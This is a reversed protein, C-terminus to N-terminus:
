SRTKKFTYVTKNNTKNLIDYDLVIFRYSKQIDNISMNKFIKEKNKNIYLMSEEKLNYKNYMWDRTGKFNNCYDYTLLEKLINDQNFLILLNEYMDDYSIKREILKSLICYNTICEFLEYPNNFLTELYKISEIFMKSNFITEFINEFKKLYSIDEYSMFKNQLVEYPPYSLFTYDYEKQKTYIDTGKLFKLFGLQMETTRLLYLDNFSKKFINIDEYPLGIILDTHIHLNNMKVLKQIVEKEYEFNYKRNISELTQRNTSQVGIELRFINKPVTKLFELIEDDILSACIEFHFTTNIRNEILFNWIEIARKKNSNFTRDIFRIQIVNKDLLKKLDNKVNVIDFYKINKDICSLCYSCRFPCGRSTEFYIAREDYNNVLDDSISPIDDVNIKYNYIPKLSNNKVDNVFKIINNESELCMICDIFKYKNLMEESNYSVEPGGFSIICNPKIKKINEAIKLTQEINWIYIGFCIADANYAIIKNLINS